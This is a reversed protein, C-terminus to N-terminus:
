SQALVEPVTKLMLMLIVFALYPLGALIEPLREYDQALRHFRSIWRFRAWWGM